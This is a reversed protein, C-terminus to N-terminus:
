ESEADRPSSSLWGWTVMDSIGGWGPDGGSSAVLLVFSHFKLSVAGEM